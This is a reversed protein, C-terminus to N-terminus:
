TPQIFRVNVKLRAFEIEDGDRLRYHKNPTLQFGNIRTGNTSELDEIYLYDEKRVIHAHLRSVGAQYGDFADLDLDIRGSQDEDVRRGVRIPANISRTVREAGIRFEVRWGPGLRSTVNRHEPM